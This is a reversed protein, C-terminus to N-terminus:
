RLGLGGADYSFTLGRLQEMKQTAMTTTSVQHKAALNKETSLAFMQAVALAVTALLGTAVAVEAISFGRESSYSKALSNVTITKTKGSRTVTISAPSVLATATGTSVDWATGDPRFELAVTTVTASNLMQRLPGDFNPTTALDNDPRAMPVDFRRM